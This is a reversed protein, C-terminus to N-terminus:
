KWISLIFHMFHCVELKLKTNTKMNLIPGARDHGIKGILSELM